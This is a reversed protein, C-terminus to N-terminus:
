QDEEYQRELGLLRRGMIEHLEEQPITFRFLKGANIILVRRGNKEIECNLSYQFFGHELGETVVGLLANIAAIGQHGGSPRLKAQEM